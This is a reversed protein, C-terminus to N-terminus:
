SFHCLAHAICPCVFGQLRYLVKGLPVAATKAQDIRHSLEADMTLRYSSMAGLHKYSSNICVTHVMGPVQLKGDPLDAFLRQIQKKGNGLPSVILGSKGDSYNLTYGMTLFARDVAIVTSLWMVAVFLATKVTSDKM